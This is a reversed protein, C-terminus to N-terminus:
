LANPLSGGYIMSDFHADVATKEFHQNKKKSELKREYNRLFIEFFSKEVMEILM